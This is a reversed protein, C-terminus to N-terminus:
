NLRHVARRALNEECETPIKKGCCWISLVRGFRQSTTAQCYVNGSLEITCVQYGPFPKLEGTGPDCLLQDALRQGVTRLLRSSLPQPELTGHNEAVRMEQIALRAPLRKANLGLLGQCRVM